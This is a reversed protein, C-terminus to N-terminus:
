EQYIAYVVASAHLAKSQFTSEVFRDYQQNWMCRSALKLSSNNNETVTVFVVIKYRACGTEKVKDRITSTIGMTLAPITQTNYTIGNLTDEMTEKMIKCVEPEPFPAPPQTRYSNEQKRTTRSSATYSLKTTGGAISMKIHRSSM